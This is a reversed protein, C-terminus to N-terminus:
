LRDLVRSTWRELARLDAPSVGDFVVARVLETHQPAAVRLAAAGAETLEITAARRDDDAGRREILGRTRM